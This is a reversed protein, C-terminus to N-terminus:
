TQDLHCFNPGLFNKSGIKTAVDFETKHPDLVLM